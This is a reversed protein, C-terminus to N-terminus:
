ARDITVSLGFSKLRDRYLEAQELPCVIVVASGSQHAELMVRFAQKATLQPVSKQLAQVVYDMDHVDDNHLIVSYPPLVVHHTRQEQDTDTKARPIM